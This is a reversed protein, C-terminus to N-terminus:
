QLGQGPLMRRLVGDKLWVHHYLAAAIHIGVLVVILSAFGEHMGGFTRGISSTAELLPPLMFLGFVKIPLHHTSAYAWGSFPLLILLIYLLYHMATAVASMWAPAPTVLKTVPRVLRMLLLLAAIPLLVLGFSMHLNLFADPTGTRVGSMVWSTIFQAGVLVVVM